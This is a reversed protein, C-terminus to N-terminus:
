LAATGLAEHGWTAWGFRERRAFLEVYPGNSLEEVLDLFGEPKASHVKAGDKYPQMWEHASRTSVENHRAKGRRGLLIVEHAPRITRGLGASRKYWVMVRPLPEFGWARMVRTADGNVLFADTTWLFLNCDAAALSEVNLDAIADITMTRYPLARKTYSRTSGTAAGATTRGQSWKIPWPPDAVITGYRGTM